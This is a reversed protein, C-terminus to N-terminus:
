AFPKLLILEIYPLNPALKQKSKIVAGNSPDIWWHNDFEIDLTPIFIREIYHKTPQTTGNIDLIEDAIFTFESNVPYGLHYGPQWDIAHQWHTPTTALHLGLALPDTQKSHSSVLNGSPLNLTKVIRGNETILMGKDASVWKLQTRQPKPSSSASFGAVDTLGLTARDEAFALVMFAQPGDDVRAYMSAYPLKNIEETSLSVDKDGFFALNVTNNVDNFKQSCGTLTLLLLVATSCQRFM